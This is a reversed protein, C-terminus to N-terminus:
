DRSYPDPARLSDPDRVRQADAGRRADLARRLADQNAEHTQNRTEAAAAREAPPPAKSQTLRAVLWAVLRALLAPM